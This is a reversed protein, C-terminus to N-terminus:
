NKREYSLIQLDHSPTRLTLLGSEKSGVLDQIKRGSSISHTSFQLYSKLFVSLEVKDSINELYAEGDKFSIKATNGSIGNSPIVLSCEKKRGIILTETTPLTISDICSSLKIQEKDFVRKMSLSMSSSEPSLKVM